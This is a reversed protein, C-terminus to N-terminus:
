VLWRNVATYIIVITILAAIGAVVGAAVLSSFIRKAIYKMDFLGGLAM